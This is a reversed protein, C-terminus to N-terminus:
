DLMLNRFISGGSADLSKNPPPGPPIIVVQRDKVDGSKIPKLASIANRWREPSVSVIAANRNEDSSDDYGCDCGQDVWLYYEGGAVVELELHRWMSRTDFIYKGPRLRMMFYQKNRLAAIERNKRKLGGPRESFYVPRTKRFWFFFNTVVGDEDLRYVYVTALGQQPLQSAPATTREQGVISGTCILFSLMLLAFFTVNRM